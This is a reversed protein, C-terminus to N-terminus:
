AQRRTIAHAVISRELASSVRIIQIERRKIFNKGGDPDSGTKMEEGSQLPYV